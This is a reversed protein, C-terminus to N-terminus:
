TGVKGLESFIVADSMFLLYGPPPPSWVTSSAISERRHAPDENNRASNRAEWIHWISVAMVTAM